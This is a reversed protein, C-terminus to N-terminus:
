TRTSNKRFVMALSKGRLPARPAEGAKLRRAHELLSTLEDCTFDRLSLFDKKRAPSMPEPFAIKPDSSPHLIALFDAMKASAGM